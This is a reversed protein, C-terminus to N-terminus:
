SLSTHFLRFFHSKARRIKKRRMNFNNNCIDSSCDYILTKTIFRQMIRNWKSSDLVICDREWKFTFLMDGLSVTRLKWKIPKTGPFLLFFGNVNVLRDMEPCTVYRPDRTPTEASCHPSCHPCLDDTPHRWTGATDGRLSNLRDM